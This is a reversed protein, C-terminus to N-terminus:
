GAAHTERWQSPSMGSWRKFAHIFTTADTYGLALAIEANTAGTNALFSRAMAYRVVNVENRFSTGHERLRRNLTREHVGITQAAASATCTKTILTSRVFRHLQGIMEMEKNSHLEAAKQELYEFLLHDESPLKHQLWHTPFVVASETANFRIPARFVQKYPATDRPKSRSLLVETPNWDEGCLHRMINCAITISQDYIQETASVHPLHLAYGLSTFKGNTNLTAVGGQDHLDLHRLLAQLAMDVDQATRLMFGAIGLSSPEARMGVLLGLHECNTLEVCREIFRSTAIFPLEFDPNDFQRLQLGFSDLVPEPDIKHERLIAILGMLPGARVVALHQASPRNNKTKRIL